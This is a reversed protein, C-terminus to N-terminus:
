GPGRGQTCPLPPFINWTSCQSESTAPTPFDAPPADSKGPEAGATRRRNM